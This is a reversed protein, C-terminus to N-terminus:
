RSSPSRPRWVPSQADTVLKRLGTGDANLIHIAGDDLEGESYAIRTGDPSWAPEEGEALQRMDSGNASMAMLQSYGQVFAISRGNPSWTGEGSGEALRKRDAGKANVAYLPRLPASGVLIWRNDSSWPEDGLETFDSVLRQLGSGDVDVVYAADDNAFAIKRGDRSWAVDRADVKALRRRGTGDAAIVWLGLGTDAGFAILRGNPSWAPSALLGLGRTLRKKDSGDAKMSWLAEFDRIYAIRKGGPSWAPDAADDRLPRGALRRAHGGAANASWISTYCTEDGGEVTCTQREFAIVGASARPLASADGGSLLLACFALATVGFGFGLM